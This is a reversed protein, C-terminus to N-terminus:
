LLAIRRHEWTNNKTPYALYISPREVQGDILSKICETTESDLFQKGTAVCITRVEFKKSLSSGKKLIEDIEYIPNGNLNTKEFIIPKEDPRCIEVAAGMPRRLGASSAIEFQFVAYDRMKEINTANESTM